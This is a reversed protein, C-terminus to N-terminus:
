AKGSSIQSKLTFYHMPQGEMAVAITLPQTFVYTVGYGDAIQSVYNGVPPNLSDGSLFSGGMLGPNIISLWTGLTIIDLIQVKTVIGPSHVSIATVPSDYKSSYLTSIYQRFNTGVDTVLNTGGMMRVQSSLPFNFYTPFHPVSVDTITTMMTDQFTCYGGSVCPILAAFDIELSGNEYLFPILNQFLFNVPPGGIGLGFGSPPEYQNQESLMCPGNVWSILPLNSMTKTTRLCSSM